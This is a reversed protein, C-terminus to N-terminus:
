GHRVMTEALERLRSKKWQNLEAHTHFKQAAFGPLIPGPPLPVVTPRLARLRVKASYDDSIKVALPYCTWILLSLSPKTSM